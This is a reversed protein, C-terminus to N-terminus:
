VWEDPVVDPWEEGDVTVRVDMEDETSSSIAM